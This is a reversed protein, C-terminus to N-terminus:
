SRRLGFIATIAELFKSQKSALRRREAEELAAARAEDLGEKRLAVTRAMADILEPSAKLIPGLADRGVEVVEVDTKAVVSATRPEGTLLAMEGVFQGAALSAVARQTGQAEIRVEVHGRLLALLSDGQDGQRILVEGAGYDRVRVGSQLADLQEPSLGKFIPIRALVELVDPAKELKPRHLTIDQIPFPVSIGQRKLVYWINSQVDSHIRVRDGYNRIWYKLTYNIAFDGFSLLSATSKPNSVVGSVGHVAELLAAKARSPALEYPLGIYVYLAHDPTPKSFNTFSDNHVTAHPVVVVDGAMTRLRVTRWTIEIVEGEIDHVKVWDGLKVIGESILGIGSFLSALPDKLAVLSLLSGAGLGAAAGAFAKLGFLKDAVIVMVVLVLLYMMLNLFIAPIRIRLRDVVFSSEALRECLVFIATSLFIVVFSLAVRGSTDDKTIGLKLWHYVFPPVAFFLVLTSVSILVAGSRKRDRFLRLMPVFVMLVLIASALSILLPWPDELHGLRAIEFPPPPAAGTEGAATQTQPESGDLFLSYEGVM